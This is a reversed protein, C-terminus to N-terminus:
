VSSRKHPQQEKQRSTDLEVAKAMLDNSMVDLSEVLERGVRALRKCRDVTEILFEETTKM